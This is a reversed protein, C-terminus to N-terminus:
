TEEWKLLCGGWSYGVGFGMLLVTDGNKLIGRNIADKLAIPISSSVTNGINQYNTFIKNLPLKLHRAINDLVLKSAQHFIFLDVDEIAIGAKDLVANISKPVMSMTFMFVESGNMFLSGHKENPLRRSGSGEVILNKAGSGNTGLDFPGLESGMSHTLLTASAADSFLPRCTRDNQNIYKTYTDGCILLVNKSINAHILAGGISLGYIYGSCGQNVDFAMCSTSLGLRHQIICSSAPLAYDPSQTVFILADIKSRDIAYKLLKEAAIVGLDSATQSPKSIRRALIGTKAETDSLRLDPIDRVLDAGTEIKEPLYYEVGAIKVKM